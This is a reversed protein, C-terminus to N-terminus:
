SKLYRDVIEKFQDFSNCVSCYYGSKSLMRLTKEQNESLKGKESKMEVFLGPHTTNKEAIFLDPFGSLTGMAKFKAAEILNRKGGNPSHHIIRNPYQLRFWRVCEKQLNAEHHIM